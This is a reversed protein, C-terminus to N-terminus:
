KKCIRKKENEEKQFIEVIIVHGNKYDPRTLIM